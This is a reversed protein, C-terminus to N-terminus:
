AQEGREPLARGLTAVDWLRRLIAAAEDTPMTETGARVAAQTEWMACCITAQVAELRGQARGADARAHSLSNTLDTITRNASDDAITSM